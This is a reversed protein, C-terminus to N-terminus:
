GASYMTTSRSPPACRQCMPMMADQHAFAVGDCRDVLSEFPVARDRADVLMKLVTKTQRSPWDDSPIPGDDRDARFPGLLVFRLM